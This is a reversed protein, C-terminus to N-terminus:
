RKVFKVTRAAGEPMEMRLLYVGNPLDSVDLTHFADQVKETRLTRGTIDTIRVTMDMPETGSLNLVTTAPNPYVSVAIDFDRVSTRDIVHVTTEFESLCGYDGLIVEFHLTYYGPSFQDPNVTFQGGTEPINVGDITMIGGAPATIHYLSDTFMINDVALSLPEPNVVSLTATDRAICGISDTYNAYLAYVGASAPAFLGNASLNDGYFFLNGGSPAATTLAAVDVPFSGNSCLHDPLGGLSVEPHDVEVWVSDHTVCGHQDYFDVSIWTSETMPPTTYDAMFMSDGAVWTWYNLSDISDGVHWTYTGYGISQAEITPESGYCVLPDVALLHTSDEVWEYLYTFISFIEEGYAKCGRSDYMFVHYLRGGGVLGCVMRTTDELFITDLGNETYEFYCWTFNYPPSGGCVSISNCGLQGICVTDIYLSDPNSYWADPQEITVSDTYSCGNTGHATIYHTGPGLNTLYKDRVSSYSTSWWGPLFPNTEASINTYKWISDTLHVRFAGDHYPYDWGNPCTIHKVSDIIFKPTSSVRVSWVIPCDPAAGNISIVKYLRDENPTLYVTNGVVTDYQANQCFVTWDDPGVAYVVTDTSDCMEELAWWELSDGECINIVFHQGNALPVFCCFLVLVSIYRLIAKMRMM